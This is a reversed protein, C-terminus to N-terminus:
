YIYKRKYSLRFSIIGLYFILFLNFNVNKSYTIADMYRKQNLAILAKENEKKPVDKM